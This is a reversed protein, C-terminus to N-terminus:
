TRLLSYLATGGNANEDGGSLAAQGATPDFSAFVCLGYDTEEFNITLGNAMSPLPSQAAAPKLCLSLRGDTSGLKVCIQFRNLEDIPLTLSM